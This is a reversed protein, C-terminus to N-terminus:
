HNLREDFDVTQARSSWVKTMGCLLRRFNTCQSHHWVRDSKPPSTPMSSTPISASRWRFIRGPRAHPEGGGLRGAHRDAARGRGQRQRRSARHRAAKPGRPLSRASLDRARDERERGTHAVQGWRVMQSYFWLAHSKWPFTAAKAFPVFFDEAHRLDGGGTDIEGSLGRLMWEAPGGIIPRIRSSGRSSRAIPRRARVMPGIPVSCAAPGRARRSQSTGM